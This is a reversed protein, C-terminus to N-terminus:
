TFHTSTTAPPLAVNTSSTSGGLQGGAGAAGVRRKRKLESRDMRLTIHKGLIPSRNLSDFLMESEFDPPPQQHHHQDRHHGRHSSKASSKASSSVSVKDRIPYFAPRARLIRVTDIKSYIHHGRRALKEPTCLVKSSKREPSHSHGRYHYGRSRRGGGSAGLATAAESPPTPTEHNNLHAEDQTSAASHSRKNSNLNMVPVSHGGGGSRSSKRASRRTSHHHLLAGNGHLVTRNLDLPPLTKTTETNGSATMVTRTHKKRPSAAASVLYPSVNNTSDKVTGSGGGTGGGSASAVKNNNLSNTQKSTTSAQVTTTPTGRWHADDVDDATTSSAM